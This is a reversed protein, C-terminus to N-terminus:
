IAQPPPKLLAKLEAVAADRGQRVDTAMAAIAMGTNRAQDILEKYLMTAEDRTGDRYTALENRLQLVESSTQGMRESMVLLKDQCARERDELSDVRATLVEIISSERTDDLKQKGLLFRFTPVLIAGV